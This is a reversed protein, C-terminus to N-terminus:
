KSKVYIGESEFIDGIIVKANGFRYDLEGGGFWADKEFEGPHLAKARTTKLERERRIIEAKLGDLDANRMLSQTKRLFACLSVNRHVSLRAFVAEMDVEALTAVDPQLEEWYNNAAENRGDSVVKNYIVRLVFLFRSFAYALAYDNQIQIPFLTILSDLERFTKCAFIEVVDNRLIYAFMSEPYSKIIQQKLFYGEDSLM